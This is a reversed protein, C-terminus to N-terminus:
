TVPFHAQMICSVCKKADAIFDCIGTHLHTLIIGGYGQSDYFAVFLSRPTQTYFQAVKESHSMFVCVQDELKSTALLDSSRERYLLYQQSIWFLSFRICDPLIEYPFSCSLFPQKTM